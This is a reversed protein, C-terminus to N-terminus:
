RQNPYGGGKKGSPDPDPKAGKAFTYNDQSQNRGTGSAVKNEYIFVFYNIPTIINEEISIVIRPRIVSEVVNAKELKLL